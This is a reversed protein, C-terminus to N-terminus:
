IWRRVAGQYARYTQGFKAELYREEPRIVMVCLLSGLPVTVLAMLPSNLLFSVGLYLLLMSFYVPNRSRRFAGTNVIVTTPKRIDFATHARAIARAAQTVLIISAVILAGGLWVFFRGPFRIEPFTALLIAGATFAALLIVPPLVKVNARDPM